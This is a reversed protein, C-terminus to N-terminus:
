RWFEPLWTIALGGTYVTSAGEEGSRDRVVGGTLGIDLEGIRVGLRAEAEPSVAAKDGGIFALGGSLDAYVSWKGSPRADGLRLSVFASTIFKSDLAGLTFGVSPNIGRMEPHQWEVGGRLRGFGGGTSTLGGQLSLLPMMTTPEGNVIAGAFLAYSDTNKLAQATSLSLFERERSYIDPLNLGKSSLGIRHGNEHILATARGRASQGFYPAFLCVPIGKPIDCWANAGAARAIPADLRSCVYLKNDLMDQLAKHTCRMRERVTDVTTAGHDNFYWDLLRETRGALSGELAAIAEATYSLAREIDAEISREKGKCRKISCSTWYTVADEESEAAAEQTEDRQVAGGLAPAADQQVVHALEHALLRQGTAGAPDYKGAGFVVDRGFTYAHASLASASAAAAPGTHVRVAGFDHGFRPEFHGRAAAPLPAGGSATGAAVTSSVDGGGRTAGPTAARQVKKEEECDACARQAAPPARLLARLGSDRAPARYVSRPAGHRPSLRRQARAFTRV